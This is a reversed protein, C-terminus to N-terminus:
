YGADVIKRYYNNAGGGAPTDCDPFATIWAARNTGAFKIGNLYSPVTNKNHAFNHPNGLRMVSPALNGVNVASVMSDCDYMFTHGVYSLSSPLAINQNFAECRNMFDYGITSLSSPLALPQNFSLQNKLFGNGISIVTNPLTLTSNYDM